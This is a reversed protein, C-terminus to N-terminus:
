RLSLSGVGGEYHITVQRKATEFDNTQWVGEEGVRKDGGSVKVYNSPVRIDGVGSNADLKVGVGDPVHINVSGVGGKIDFQVAAGTAVDVNLNGVGGNLNVNYSNDVNPVTVNVNGVGGNVRLDTIQLGSLDLTTDSVGCNVDLAIPVNKTLTVDWHLNRPQDFWGLFDLSGTNETQSLNISKQTDGAVKFTVEGIYRINAKFLDNSDDLAKVTTSAVGIDLNVRASTANGVPESYNAEKVEVNKVLGLSPGLLMLLVIVVVGGLAILM